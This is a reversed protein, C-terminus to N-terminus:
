NMSIRPARDIAAGLLDAVVMARARREASVDFLTTPGFHVIFHALHHGARDVPVVATRGPTGPPHSGGPPVTVRAHGLRPLHTPAPGPRYEVDGADLLAGLETTAAQILWGLDDDGAGLGATRRLSGLDAESREAREDSARKAEVLGAVLLGVTLLVVSVIVDDAGDIRFSLYPKTLLFDYALAGVIAAIVGATRGRWMAAGVVPLVFVLALAATM